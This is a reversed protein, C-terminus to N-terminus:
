SLIFQPFQETFHERVKMPIVISFIYLLIGLCVMAFSSMLMIPTHNLYSYNYHDLLQMGQLPIQFVLNIGIQRSNLYNILLFSKQDTTKIKFRSPYIWLFYFVDFVMISVFIPVTVWYFNGVSRYILFLLFTLAITLLVKPLKYFEITYQWFLRRYERRLGKEKQEKVKSFGYIGFKDFTNNLAVSLPRYPNEQWQEEIGSALHDVLEIQLDYEPIYHKRCFDFLRETEEETLKRTGM